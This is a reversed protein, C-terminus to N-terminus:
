ECSIRRICVGLERTDGNVLYDDPRWMADAVIRFRAVQGNLRSDVDFYVTKWDHNKLVVNGLSTGNCFFDVGLPENKVDPKLTAIEVKIRCGSIKMIFVAQRGTWRIQGDGWSEPQYWGNLLINHSDAGMEIQDPADPFITDLPNRVNSADAIKMRNTVIQPTLRSIGIFKPETPFIRLTAARDFWDFNGEFGHQDPHLAATISYEGPAINMQLRFEVVLIEDKTMRRASQNHHGTNTGFIDNGLRDKILIGVVANQVEEFFVSKVVIICDEGSVVAGVEEGSSNRISIECIGADFSGWRFGKENERKGGKQIISFQRGEQAYRQQILATYFDTIDRPDGKEVLLGRDLLVAQSCLNRIAGIDHSVLLIAVGQEQFEKLKRICKQSFLADGVSMVEDILLVRPEINIAVSFALRLYMGSSYTKVPRDIFEGIGSFDVIQGFKADIEEKPIGLLAGNLYVNSRGTFEPHFGMGLEILSSRKGNVIAHGETPLMLGALIKLLTSKGSGNQGLVGVTTGCQVSFSINKLAWYEQHFRKRGFHLLEKVRHSPKAYLDFKKSLNQVEISTM